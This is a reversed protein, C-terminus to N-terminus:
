HQRAHREIEGEHPVLTLIWELVLYLGGVGVVTYIVRTATAMDGFIDAVLDYEFIGILLWNLAGLIVLFLAIWGFINLRLEKM